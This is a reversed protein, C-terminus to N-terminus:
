PVSLNYLRLMIGKAGISFFAHEERNNTAAAQNM